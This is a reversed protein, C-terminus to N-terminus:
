VRLSIESLSYESQRFHRFPIIISSNFDKTATISSVERVTSRLLKADRLRRYGLTNLPQFVHETRGQEVAMAFRRTGGRKRMTNMLM